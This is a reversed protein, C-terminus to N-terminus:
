FYRSTGIASKYSGSVFQGGGGTDLANVPHWTTLPNLNFTPFPSNTTWGGTYSPMPANMMQTMRAINERRDQM